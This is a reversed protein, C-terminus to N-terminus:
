FADRKYSDLVYERNRPTQDPFVVDWKGTELYQRLGPLWGEQVFVDNQLFVLYDGKAEKAGLNMCATYGPDPEPELHKDIKLLQYDDRIAFPKPSPDTVILEYEDPNTYKGVCDISTMSMHAETKNRIKCTMIISTLKPM